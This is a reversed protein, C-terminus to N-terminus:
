RCLNAPQSSRQGLISLLTPNPSNPLPVRDFQIFLPMELPRGVRGDNGVFGTEGRGLQLTQSSSTVQIHGDRVFVFLGVEDAPADGGSFLQRMDFQVRDPRELRELTPADLPRIVTRSVFLGQGAELLQSTTQGIQTVEIVGQWTFFSCSDLAVCDLDLGTGRIGITATPTTFKVNRKDAKGILGTLARMSGRVLSVMAKGDAPNADDFVFSDVKFRTNGGLTIRSDDRFVLVGKAAAATEVTDGPYVAAGDVLKRKVLQGDIATIEGQASILKASAAIANLRPKESVKASEGKCQAGCVRADFDTGHIGVSANATEIRAADPAGKSIAGTVARLGGRLLQLVMSNDPADQTFRYQQMVMESDPRLTMRTGDMLKIIASSDQATTLRDGAMLAQGKGLTRPLHGPTQAFGVGQAYEVEGAPQAAAAMCAGLLFAALLQTLAPRVRWSNILAFM